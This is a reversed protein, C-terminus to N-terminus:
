ATKSPDLVRGGFLVRGRDDHIFFLFSRDVKFAKAAPMVASEGFVIATAAAAETGAENVKIWAKQVVDTIELGKGMRSLDPNGGLTSLLGLRRLQPVLRVESTVEFKPLAVALRGHSSAATTLPALGDRAYAKEVDALSAGDPVAILM